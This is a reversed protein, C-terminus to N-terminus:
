GGPAAVDRHTGDSAPLALPGFYAVLAFAIFNLMITNIVEHSGFRAKLLGPDRGVAGGRPPPWRSCRCRAAVAPLASGAGVLAARLRRTSSARPASTSCGPASASRSRSGTFVLPTARFLTQGLRLRHRPEARAM